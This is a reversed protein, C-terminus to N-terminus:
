QNTWHRSLFSALAAFAIEPDAEGTWSQWFGAFLNVEGHHQTRVDGESTAGKPQWDPGLAERARLLHNSSAQTNGAKWALYARLFFAGAAKPNSQCVATLRSEAVALRGRLLAIEALLLLAGTESTNIEHARQLAAEAAALDADTAASQAMIIGWQQWARHSQPNIARLAALSELAGAPDDCAALCLALYYRADEHSPNLDIAQRFIPIAMAPDKERKLMDMASRHLTWFQLIRERDTTTATSTQTSPSATTILTPRPDAEFRRPAPEGEFWIWTTNADLNDVRNSGGAHWRVELQDVRMAAGLGWHLVRSDQSLYSVGTV